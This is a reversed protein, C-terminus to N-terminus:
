ADRFQASQHEHEDVLREQGRNRLVVVEQLRFGFFCLVLATLERRRVLADCDVNFSFAHQRQGRRATGSQIAAQALNCLYCTQCATADKKYGIGDVRMSSPSLLPSSRCNSSLSFGDKRRNAM